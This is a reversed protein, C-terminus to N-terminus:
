LKKLQGTLIMKGRNLKVERIEAKQYILGLKASLSDAVIQSVKRNLIAPLSLQGASTNIIDFKVRGDQIRPLATMVVKASIPKILTGYILINQENISFRIDKLIVNEASFGEALLSTLEEESVSVSVQGDAAPKLDKLKQNFGALSGASPLNAPFIKEKTIQRYLYFVAGGFILLILFMLVALSQCTCCSQHSKKEDLEQYFKNEEM